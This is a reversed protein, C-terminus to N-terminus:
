GEPAWETIGRRCSGSPLPFRVPSNLAREMSWTVRKKRLDKTNWVSLSVLTKWGEM